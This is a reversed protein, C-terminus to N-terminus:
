ENHAIVCKVSYRAYGGIGVLIEPLLEPIYEFWLTLMKEGPM